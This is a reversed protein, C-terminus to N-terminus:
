EELLECEVLYYKTEENWSDARFKEDFENKGHISEEYWSVSEHDNVAKHIEKSRQSAKLIRNAALKQNSYACVVWESRDSYEGCTGIVVYIKM